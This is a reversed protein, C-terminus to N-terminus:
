ERRQEIFGAFPHPQRFNGGSTDASGTRDTAGDSDAHGFNARAHEAILREPVCHRSVFDDADTSNASTTDPKATDPEGSRELGAGTASASEFEALKSEAGRRIGGVTSAFVLYPVVYFVGRSGPRSAGNYAEQCAAM